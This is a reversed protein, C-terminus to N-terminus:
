NILAKLEKSARELLEEVTRTKFIKLCKEETIGDLEDDVYILEDPSAGLYPYSIHLWLGSENVVVNRCKEYLAIAKPEQIGYLMDLTTFSQKFWLNRELWNFLRQKHGENNDDLLM